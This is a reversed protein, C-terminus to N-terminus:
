MKCRDYGSGLDMGKASEDYVFVVSQSCNHVIRVARESSVFGVIWVAVGYGLAVSWAVLGATSGVMHRSAAPELLVVTSSGYLIFPPPCEDLAIAM